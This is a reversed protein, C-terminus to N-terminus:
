QEERPRPHDALLRDTIARHSRSVGRGPVWERWQRCLEQKFSPNFHHAYRAFEGESIERLHKKGLAMLM